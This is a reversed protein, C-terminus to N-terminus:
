YYATLLYTTFYHTTLLKLTSSAEKLGDISRAPKIGPSVPPKSNGGPSMCSKGGPSLPPAQIPNPHPDPDPHRNPNPNPTQTLHAM